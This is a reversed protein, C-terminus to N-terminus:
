PICKNCPFAGEKACEEKTYYPIGKDTLVEECNERHYYKKGLKGTIYFVKSKSIRAGGFVYRNYTDLAAANYPYGQFLVFLSVDDITRDWDTRDIEPLWFEYTIGFDSAISNYYNIYLNMNKSISQTITKRRIREFVDDDKLFSCETLARIDRYDGAWIEMSEKEFLIIEDGMTFKIVYLDDEYVYYLKESWRKDLKQESGSLIEATYYIYFGDRDTVLIVPIYRNLQEEQFSQGMVGFNAYLSSFFQEVAKEKNTFLKRSSDAEVLYFCGDDVANDLATNYANTKEAVAGLQQFRIDLISFVLIEIVLFVLCLDSLKM